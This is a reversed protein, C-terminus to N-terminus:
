HVTIKEKLNEYKKAGIGSVNKIDEIDQFPGNAERYEIIREALSPGIGPLSDLQSQNATNINVLGTAFGPQSTAGYSGGPPNKGVGHYPNSVGSYSGSSTNSGAQVMDPKYPVLITQGDNVPSALKLANLNAEPAPGSKNVADIVRSGAPIQYVGPSTVAGTVHVMIDKAKESSNKVLATSNGDGAREKMHALRYGAGFLIIAGLIVLVLVQKRDLQLM